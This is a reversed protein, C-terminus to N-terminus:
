IERQSQNDVMKTLLPLGTDVQREWHGSKVSTIASFLNSCSPLAKAASWCDVFSCKITNLCLCPRLINLYSASLALFLTRFINLLFSIILLFFHLVCTLTLHKPGAWFVPLKHCVNCAGFTNQWQYQKHRSKQTWLLTTDRETNHWKFYLVQSLGGPPLPKWSKKSDTRCPWCSFLWKWGEQNTTTPSWLCPTNTRVAVCFVCPICAM